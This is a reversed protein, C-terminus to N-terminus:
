AFQRELVCARNSKLLASLDDTGIHIYFDHHLKVPIFGRLIWCITSSGPLLAHVNYMISMLSM